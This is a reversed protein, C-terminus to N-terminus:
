SCSSTTISRRLYSSFRSSKIIATVSGAMGISILRRCSRNELVIPTNSFLDQRRKILIPIAPETVAMILDLRKEEYKRRLMVVLEQEYDIGGTRGADLYESYIEIPGPSEKQLTSRLAQEVIVQSAAHSDSSFLILVHKPAADQAAVSSVCTALALLLFAVALPLSFQAARTPM